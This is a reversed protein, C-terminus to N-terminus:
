GHRAERWAVYGLLWPPANDMPTPKDLSIMEKFSIVEKCSIMEALAASPLLLSGHQLPLLVCRVEERADTQDTM